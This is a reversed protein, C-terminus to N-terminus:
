PTGAHADSGNIIALYSRIVQQLGAVQADCQEAAGVIRGASEQRRHEAADAGAIAAATSPVGAIVTPSWDDRLKLSGARLGAIVANADANADAKGREYNTAAAVLADAQAHEASRAAAIAKTNAQAIQAQLTAVQAAGHDIGRTYGFREGEIWGIGTGLTLTVLAFVGAILGRGIKSTLFWAAIREWM